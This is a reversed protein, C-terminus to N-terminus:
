YSEGVIRIRVISLEDQIAYRLGNIYRAVVEDGENSHGSRIFL